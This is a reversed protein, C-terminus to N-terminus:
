DVPLRRRWTIPRLVIRSEATGSWDVPLGARTIAAAVDRGIAEDATESVPRDFSGFALYLEADPDALREADQSHFFVFGRSDDDREDGIEAFGCTSCCTFNMMAVIGADELEEFAADLRDSDTVDPWAREEALRAQWATDVLQEAQARPIPAKLDWDAVRDVVEDHELFGPAIWDTIAERLQDDVPVPTM